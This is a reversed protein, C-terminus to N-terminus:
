DWVKETLVNPNLTRSLISAIITHSVKGQNFNMDYKKNVDKDMSRLFDVDDSTQGDKNMMLTTQHCSYMMMFNDYDTDLIKYGLNYPDNAAKQKLVEQYIERQKQQNEEYIKIYDKTMKKREEETLDEQISDKLFEMYRSDETDELQDKSLVAAKNSQVPHNFIFFQDDEYFIQGNLSSQPDVNKQGIFMQLSTSNAGPFDIDARMSLCDLDDTRLKDEYIFKWYGALKHPKLTDGREFMTNQVQPCEGDFTIKESAERLTQQANALYTLCSLGFLCSRNLM